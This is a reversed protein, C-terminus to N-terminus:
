GRTQAEDPNIAAQTEEGELERIHFLLWGKPTALSATTQNTALTLGKFRQAHSSTRVTCVLPKRSQIILSEQSKVLCLGAMPLPSTSLEFRDPLVM